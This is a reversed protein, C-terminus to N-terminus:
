SDCVGRQAKDLRLSGRPPSHDFLRSSRHVECFDCITIIHVRHAFELGKRAVAVAEWGRPDRRRAGDEVTMCFATPLDIRVTDIRRKM